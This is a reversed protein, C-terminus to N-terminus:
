MASAVWSLSSVVIRVDPAFHPRVVSLRKPWNRTLKSKEGYIVERIVEPLMEGNRPFINKGDCAIGLARVFDEIYPDNEEIIYVKDVKSAFDKIMEAPLPTQSVLNSIPPKMALFKAPTFIAIAPVSSALGPTAM